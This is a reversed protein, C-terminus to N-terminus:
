VITVISCWVPNRKAVVQEFAPQWGLFRLKPCRCELRVLVVDLQVDNAPKTRYRKLLKLGFVEVGEVRLEEDVPFAVTGTAAM